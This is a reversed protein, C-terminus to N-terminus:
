DDYDAGGSLYLYEISGIDVVAVLEHGHYAFIISDERFINDAFINIYQKNTLQVVLKM